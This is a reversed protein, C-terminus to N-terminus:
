EESDKKMDFIIESLITKTIMTVFEETYNNLYTDKNTIGAQELHFDDFDKKDALFRRCMEEYNKTGSTKERELYHALLDADFTKIYIPVVLNEGYRSYYYEQIKQYSEITGVGIYYHNEIDINNQCTAYRWVTPKGDVIVDYSRSEIVDLSDFQDEDVFYYDSGHIEGVRIPRTTYPIIRRFHSNIMSDGILRNYIYSKGTGSKGMIYFIKKM